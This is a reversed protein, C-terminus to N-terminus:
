FLLFETEVVDAVVEKRTGKKGTFITHLKGVVINWKFGKNKRQKLFNCSLEVELGRRKSGREQDKERTSCSFLLLKYVTVISGRGETGAM